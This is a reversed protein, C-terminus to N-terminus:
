VAVRAFLTNSSHITYGESVYYEMQCNNCLFDICHHFKRDYRYTGLVRFSCFHTSRESSHASESRHLGRGTPLTRLCFNKTPM